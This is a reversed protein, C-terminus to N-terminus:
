CIVLKTKEIDEVSLMGNTIFPTEVMGPLIANARIGKTAYELACSRSFSIVAAKSAAYISNGPTNQLAAKSSIFVISGKQNVKKAKMIAKTLM